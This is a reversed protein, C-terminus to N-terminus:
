TSAPRYGANPATCSTTPSRSGTWTSAAAPRRTPTATHMCATRSGVAGDVCLDGAFGQLGQAAADDVDGGLLAGWYPVVEPVRTDAAITRVTAFDSFPAIHPANLEHVSTVGQRGAHALASRLAHERDGPTWIRHTVARAAHHADRAVLGEGRWGDYTRIAPHHDLLASSVVASHSDVRAVYAVRGGVARDLEAATFARQDPWTSEDWGYAFLM